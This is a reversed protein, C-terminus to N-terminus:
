RYSEISFIQKKAFFEYQKHLFIGSFACKIKSPHLLFMAEWFSNQYNLFPSKCRHFFYHNNAQGKGQGQGHQGGAGLVLAARLLVPLCRLFFLGLLRVDLLNHLRDLVGVAVIIQRRHLHILLHHGVNVADIHVINLLKDCFARHDAGM